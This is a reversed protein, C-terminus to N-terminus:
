PSEKGVPHGGSAIDILEELELRELTAETTALLDGDTRSTRSRGALRWLSEVRRSREYRLTVWRERVILCAALDPPDLSWSLLFGVYYWSKAGAEIASSEPQASHHASRGWSAFLRARPLPNLPLRRCPPPGIEAALHKEMRHALGVFERSSKGPWATIASQHEPPIPGRESGRWLRGAADVTLVRFPVPRWGEGALEYWGASRAHAFLTGSRNVALDDTRPPAIALPLSKDGTSLSKLRGFSVFLYGRHGVRRTVARIGSAPILFPSIGSLDGEGGIVWLGERGPVVLVHPATGIVAAGAGAIPWRRRDEGLGADRSLLHLADGTTAWLRDSRDFVLSKLRPLHTRQRIGPGPGGRYVHEGRVAAWFGGDGIALASREKVASDDTTGPEAADEGWEIRRLAPSAEVEEEPRSEPTEFRVVARQKYEEGHAAPLRAVNRWSRGGDVTTWIEWEVLVAATDPETPACAILRIPGTPGAHCVASLLSSFLSFLALLLPKM